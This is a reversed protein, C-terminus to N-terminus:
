KDIKRLIRQWKAILRNNQIGKRQLKEIRLVIDERKM